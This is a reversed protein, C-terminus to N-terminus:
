DIRDENEEKRKVREEKGKGREELVYYRVGLVDKGVQRHSM